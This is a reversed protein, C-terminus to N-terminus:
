PGFIKDLDHWTLDLQQRIVARVVGPHHREPRGLRHLTRLGANDVPAVGAQMDTVADGIAIFADEAITRREFVLGVRHLGVTRITEHGRESAHLPEISGDVNFRLHDAPDADGFPNIVLPTEKTRRTPPLRRRRGTPKTPYLNGKWQGNCVWCSLLYNSWDYALWWYGQEALLAPRRGKVKYSNPVEAGEEGPAGTFAKINNKPAFHEVDGPAGATVPLECYACRGNQAASLEAKFASWLPNEILPKRKQKVEDAIRRREADVTTAFNAPEAPRQLRMM